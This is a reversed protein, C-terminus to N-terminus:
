GVKLYCSLLKFIFYPVILAISEINISICLSETIFDGNIGNTLINCPSESYMGIYVDIYNIPIYM